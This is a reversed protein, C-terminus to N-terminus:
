DGDQLVGQDVLRRMLEAAAEGPAGEILECKGGTEPMFLEAVRMDEEDLGEPSLGLGVFDVAEVPRRRMRVISMIPTYRLPRIGFQITLVCPLDVELEEKFGAGIERIVRASNKEMDTQIETIATIVPIGLAEGLMIGFRGQLDDEAQVGCFILGPDYKKVAERAALINAKANTGKFQEDVIHLVEDVGKALAMHLAEKARDPGITVAIVEGDLASKQHIAEEVAYLDAENAEYALGSDEIGGGGEAIRPTVASTPVHKVFTLIKM